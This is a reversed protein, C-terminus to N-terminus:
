WMNASCLICGDAKEKMGRLVDEVPITEKMEYNAASPAGTEEDDDDDDDQSQVFARLKARDEGEMGAATLVTAIQALGLNGKSRERELYGIARGLFNSGDALEKEAAAFDAAEKARVGTAAKLEADGTQIKGASVAIDSTKKGIKAELKGKVEAELANQCRQFPERTCIWEM